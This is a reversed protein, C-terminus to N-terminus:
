APHDDADSADTYETRPQAQALDPEGGETAEERAAHEGLAALARALAPQRKVFEPGSIM